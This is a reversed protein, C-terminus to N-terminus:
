PASTESRAADVLVALMDAVDAPLRAAGSALDYLAPLRAPRSTAVIVASVPSGAARAVLAQALGAVGAWRTGDAVARWQEATDGDGEVFASLRRLAAAGPGLVGHGVITTVTSPLAAGPGFPGVEVHAATLLDPARRIVAAAEVNATAVGIQGVDGHDLYDALLALLDDTVDEVRAEHLMLRDVRGLRRLTQDISSRVRAPHFDGRRPGDGGPRLRQQVAPPLRRAVAKATRVSRSPPAVPELGVKSTVTPRAPWSAIRLGLEVESRGFGYLPATDFARFGTAWAADLVAGSVREPTLGFLHATGFVATPM